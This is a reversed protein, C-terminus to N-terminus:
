LDKRSHDYYGSLVKKRFEEARHRKVARLTRRNTTALTAALLLACIFPFAVLLIHLVNM